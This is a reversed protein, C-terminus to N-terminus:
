GVMDSISRLRDSEITCDSLSYECSARDAYQTNVPHEIQMNLHRREGPRNVQTAVTSDTRAGQVSVCLSSVCTV